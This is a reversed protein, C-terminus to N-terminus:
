PRGKDNPRQYKEFAGIEALAALISRYSDEIHESIVRCDALVPMFNVDGNWRPVIHLHLHGDMGAGAVRGVNVGLNFGHPKMAAKLARVLWQTLEMMETWIAAPLEEVEGIHQYPAVMLHGNTYPYKNMIAFCNSGRALIFNAQDATAAPKLCFICGEQKEEKIYAIRWPAHMRDM